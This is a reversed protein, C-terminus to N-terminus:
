WRLAAGLRATTVRHRFETSYTTGALAFPAGTDKGLDHYLVEARVSLANSFAHEIGGGVVWGTKTRDVSIQCVCGAGSPSWNWGSNIGGFAVGGTIYIMTPSLAVGLRGRVTALWDVKTSVITSIGAGFPSAHAERRDLGLWSGDVELGYVVNQSQWNVGAFAGLLGGSLRLTCESVGSGLVPNCAGNGDFDTPTATTTQRHDLWGVGGHAGVYFGTWSFHAPPPAKVAKVPMDAAGAPLPLCAAGVIALSSVTTLLHSKCRM